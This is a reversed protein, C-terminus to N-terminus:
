PPVRARIEDASVGPDSDVGFTWVSCTYGLRRTAVGVFPNRTGTPRRLQAPSPRRTSRYEHTRELEERIGARDSLAVKPARLTHNGIEHGSRCRRASRSFRARARWLSSPRPCMRRRSPRSFRSRLHPTPATMSTLYAVRERHAGPGGRARLPPQQEYTCLGLRRPRRRRYASPLLMRCIFVFGRSPVIPRRPEACRNGPAPPNSGGNKMRGGGTSQHTARYPSCSSRSGDGLLRAPSALNVSTTSPDSRTASRGEASCTSAGRRRPYLVRSARDIRAPSGAGPDGARQARTQTPPRGPIEARVRRPPTTSVCTGVRGELGRSM